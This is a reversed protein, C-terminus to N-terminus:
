HFSLAYLSVEMKLDGTSSAMLYPRQSVNYLLGIHSWVRESWQTSVSVSYSQNLKTEVRALAGTSIDKSQVEYVLGSLSVSVFSKLDFEPKTEEEISAISKKTVFVEEKIPLKISAGIVIFDGGDPFKGENLDITKKVFGRPGWLPSYNLDFLIKGLTDGNQVDYRHYADSAFCTFAMIFITLALIIKKYM